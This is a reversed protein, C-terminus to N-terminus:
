QGDFITTQMTERNLRELGVKYFEDNNECGIYRRGNKHAAVLTTGSGAFPDLIIDGPKSFVKVQREILKLPKVCPHGLYNTTGAVCWRSYDDNSLNNNFYAGKKYMRICYELDSRLHQYGNPMGNSKCWVMMEWKYGHSIAWGIYIPLQLQSMWCIFGNRTKTQYADLFSTPNFDHGFTEAIKTLHTKLSYLRNGKWNKKLMFPPDTIIIDVSLDPLQHVLEMCDIFHLKNVFESCPTNMTDVKDVADM